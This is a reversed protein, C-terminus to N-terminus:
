ESLLFLGSDSFKSATVLTFKDDTSQWLYRIFKDYLQGQPITDRDPPRM